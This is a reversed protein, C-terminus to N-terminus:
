LGDPQTVAKRTDKPTRFVAIIKIYPWIEEM